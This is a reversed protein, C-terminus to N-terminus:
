VLIRQLKAVEIKMFGKGVKQGNKQLFDRLLTVAAVRGSFLAVM